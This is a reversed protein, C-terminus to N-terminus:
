SHQCAARPRGRQRPGRRLSTGCALARAATAEGLVAWRECQLAFVRRPRCAWVGRTGAGAAHEGFARLACAYTPAKRLRGVGAPPEAPRESSAASVAAGALSSAADCKYLM